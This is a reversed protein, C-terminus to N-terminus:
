DFGFISFLSIVFESAPLTVRSVGEQSVEDKFSSIAV